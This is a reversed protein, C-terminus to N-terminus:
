FKFLQKYRMNVIKILDVGSRKPIDPHIVIHKIKTLGVKKNDKSKKRAVIKKLMEINQSQM